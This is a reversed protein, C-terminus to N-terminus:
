TDILQFVQRDITKWEQADANDYYDLFLTYTGAEFNLDSADLRLVNLGDSEDKTFTSGNATAANSAVVLKADANNVGLRGEKGVIARIEDNVQPILTTGDAKTITINKTIGLNQYALFLAM